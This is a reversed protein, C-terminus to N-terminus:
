PTPPVCWTHHPRTGQVQEGESGLVVCVILLSIDAVLCRSELYTRVPSLYDRVAWYQQQLVWGFYLYDALIPYTTRDSVFLGTHRAHRNTLLSSIPPFRTSYCVPLALLSRRDISTCHGLGRPSIYTGEPHQHRM